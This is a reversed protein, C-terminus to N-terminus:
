SHRLLESESVVVKVVFTTHEADEAVFFGRLERIEAEVRELMTALFGGSDDGAVAGIQMKVAGHAFDFFNERGGHEFVSGPFEAIPWM